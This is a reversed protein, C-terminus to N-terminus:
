NSIAAAVIRWRNDKKVWVRMFALSFNGDTGEYTGRCTVVAADGHDIIKMDSMEVRSFRLGEEPRHANVVQTKALASQGNETLVMFHDDLVEDFFNPDHALEAQRMREELKAIEEITNM